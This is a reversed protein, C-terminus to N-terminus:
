SFGTKKLDFVHKYVDQQKKFKTKSEPNKNKRYAREFKRCLKLETKVRETHWPEKNQINVLKKQLPAHKDIICRLQSDYEKVLTPLDLNTYNQVLESNTIDERFSDIDVDDYKRFTILKTEKDNAEMDLACLVM